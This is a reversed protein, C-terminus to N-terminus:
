QSSVAVALAPVAVSVFPDDHGSLTTELAVLEEKEPFRFGEKVSPKVTNECV